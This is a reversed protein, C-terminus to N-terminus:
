KNKKVMSFLLLMKETSHKVTFMNQLSTGCFDKISKDFVSDNKDM